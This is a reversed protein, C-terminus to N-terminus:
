AVVQKVKGNLATIDARITRVDKGLQAAISKDDNGSQLLTLVQLRREEIAQQKAQQAKEHMEQFNSSKALSIDAKLAELQAQRSAIAQDLKAIEQQQQEALGSLERRMAEAQNSLEALTEIAAQREIVMKALHRLAETTLLLGVPAVIAVLWGMASPQAHSINFFITAATYLIVLGAWLRASQRMLQAALLALTFVVLPADILLPWIYALNAPIGNNLGTTLLAQYSLVFAGAAIAATLVTVALTLYRTIKASM